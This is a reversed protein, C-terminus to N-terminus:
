FCRKFNQTGRFHLRSKTNESNSIREFCSCSFFANILVFNSHQIDSSINEVSERKKFNIM